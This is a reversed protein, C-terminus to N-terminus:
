RRDVWLVLLMLSWVVPWFFSWVWIVLVFDEDRELENRVEKQSHMWVQFREVGVAYIALPILFEMVSGCITDSLRTALVCDVRYGYPGM